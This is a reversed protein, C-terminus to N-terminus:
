TKLMLIKFFNTMLGLSMMLVIFTMLLISYTALVVDPELNTASQRYDKNISVFILQKTPKV